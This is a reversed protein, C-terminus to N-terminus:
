QAHTTKKLSIEPNKRTASELGLDECRFQRELRRVIAEWSFFIDKCMCYYFYDDVSHSFSIYESECNRKKKKEKVKGTVALLILRSSENNANITLIVPM